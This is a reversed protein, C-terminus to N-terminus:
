AAPKEDDAHFYRTAAPTVACVLIVLALVFVPWAWPQGTRATTWAVMAHIIAGTVIGGRALPLARWGAWAVAAVFVGYILLMAGVGASFRGHRQLATALGIGIIALAFLATGVIAVVLSTPRGTAPEPVSM